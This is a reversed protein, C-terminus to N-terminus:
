IVKGSDVGYSRIFHDTHNRLIKIYDENEGTKDFMSILLFLPAYYEAALQRPNEEKNKRWKRIGSRNM